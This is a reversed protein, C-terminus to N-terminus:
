TKDSDADIGYFDYPLHEAFGTVGPLTVTIKNFLGVYGFANDDIAIQVIQNALEARRDTDVEYKLQDILAECEDNDFGGVDFYAGDRLTSDIFYYPDGSKDAIMCYLAIDFDATAIYTSDPDEECTLYSNVGIAKLQEQILIALTDLSRSAYYAINLNLEQGGKEYFGNPNLTYGAGEILSKAKETDVAPVTVRGYATNTGFPGEAASVTGQLYSAIAEKDVTLNIAERVPDDLRNENLIYFQLRSAPLVTVQYKDPELQYTEMASATVFDYCDIEGNQLAMQKTDDEPMYYFVAGDLRVDGNWYNENRVVKVPIGKRKMGVLVDVVLCAGLGFASDGLNTGCFSFGTRFAGAGSVPCHRRQVPLRREPSQTEM